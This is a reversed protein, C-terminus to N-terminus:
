YRLRGNMTYRQWSAGQGRQDTRTFLRARGLETGRSRANRAGRHADPDNGHCHGPSTGYDPSARAAFRGRKERGGRTRNCRSPRERMSSSRGASPSTPTRRKTRGSIGRRHLRGSSRRFAVPPVPLASRGTALQRARAAADIVRAQGGLEEAGIAAAGAAVRAAEAPRSLGGSAGSPWRPPRSRRGIPHIAILTAAHSM